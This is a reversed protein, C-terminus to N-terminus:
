FLPQDWNSAIFIALWIIGVVLSIITIISYVIYEDDDFLTIKKFIHLTYPILIGLLVIIGLLHQGTM